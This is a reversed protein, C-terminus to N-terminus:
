FANALRNFQIKEAIDQSFQESSLKALLAFASQYSVPGGNSTIVGEDVVVNKDFQVKVKPYTKAFGREGGAWTTARKGDLVSAEALLFAGSCNSSMWSASAHQRRIFEILDRNELHTDMDYSSALILVDYEAEDYISADAVIQLGEETRVSMQRTSSIVTVEYESFWAEKSAAGFVEIPATVDSTLVGDFVVVGIRKDASWATSVVLLTAIFVLARFSLTIM